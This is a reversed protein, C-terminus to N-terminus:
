RAAGKVRCAQGSSIIEIQHNGSCVLSQATIIINGEASRKIGIGTATLVVAEVCDVGDIKEIQQYIESKYVPRGFPWGSAEPGGHLPHLFTDLAEVIRQRTTTTDFGARLSVTAQVDVEVYTPAIVHLQTTVLRHKELHRCVTLLFNKSPIPKTSESFPVIVVTVSAPTEQGPAQPAYLPIAQARAVRLGPTSRALLVFDDSTVARFRTQLALRVRTQAAELTESDAGGTAARHNTVTLTDPLATDPPKGLDGPLVNGREGGGIQCRIIRVNNPNHENGHAISPIAGNVGDGFRLEGTVADLVYHTDGPMSADLDEVREWDRWCLEILNSAPEQAPEAVQLMVSAAIVPLRDLSFTQGPLGNSRGLLLQAAVTLQSVIIRLNNEGQPPIAGHEGDGFVIAIGSDRTEIRYHRDDPGSTTLTDQQVWDFWCTNSQEIQVLLEGHLALHTSAVVVQNPQGTGSYTLVDSLTERQIAAVTNLLITDVAPPLEYGAQDVTARLWFLNDDFPPIVRQQMDEPATFFLRGSQSLMLTEDHLVHLPTWNGQNDYYAWILHASPVIESFEDGHAGRLVAYAEFLNFTLSLRANAEFAQQFGLYLRSQAAAATGFAPFSLGEISNASTYDQLGTRSDSLIKAITMPVVHLEDETEFRLGQARLPTGAAIRTITGDPLKSTDKFTVDVRASTAARPQTGLLKLFKRYNDDRLRNLYYQQMEALWGFLEILTIGPDHRNHDTWTAAQRPILKTAEDILVDFRKDDLNPLPLAM